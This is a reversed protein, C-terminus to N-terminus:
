ETREDKNISYNNQLYVLDSVITDISARIYHNTVNQGLLDLTTALTIFYDGSKIEADLQLRRKDSVDQDRLLSVRQGHNILGSFTPLQYNLATSNM